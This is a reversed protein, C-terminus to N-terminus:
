LAAQEAELFAITALHGELREKADTLDNNADVLNQVYAGKNAILSGGNIRASALREEATEVAIERDVTEGKMKAIQASLASDAQRLAKAATGEVDDGKVFAVFQTVFTGAKKVNTM